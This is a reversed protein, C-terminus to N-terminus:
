GNRMLCGHYLGEFVLHFLRKLSFIIGDTIDFVHQKDINQHKFQSPCGAHNIGQQGGTDGDM